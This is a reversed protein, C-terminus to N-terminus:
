NSPSNISPYCSNNTSSRPEPGLPLTLQQKLAQQLAQIVAERQSRQPSQPTLQIAGRAHPLSGDRHHPPTLDHNNSTNCFGAVCPHM